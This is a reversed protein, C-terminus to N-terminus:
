IRIGKEIEKIRRQIDTEPDIIIPDKGPVTYVYGPAPDFTLRSDDEEEPEPEPDPLPAIVEEENINNVILENDYCNWQGEPGFDVIYLYRGEEPHGGLIMGCIGERIQLMTDPDDGHTKNVGLTVIQGNSYM